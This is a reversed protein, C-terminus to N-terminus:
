HTLLGCPPPHQDPIFRRSWMSQRRTHAHARALASRQEESPQADTFLAFRHVDGDAAVAVQVLQPQRRSARPLQVQLSGSYSSGPPITQGRFIGSDLAAARASQEAKMRDAIAQTSRVANDMAVQSAVPDRYVVTTTGSYRGSVREGDVRGTVRGSHYATTTQTGQMGASYGNAAAALGVGVNEWFRKRAELKELDEFRYVKLAVGDAGAAEIDVDRVTTADAGGNIVTVSIWAGRREVEELAVVVSIPGIRSTVFTRGHELVMEQGPLAHPTVLRPGADAPTAVGVGLCAVIRVATSWLMVEGLRHDSASLLLGRLMRVSLAGNGGSERMSGRSAGTRFSVEHQDLRASLM